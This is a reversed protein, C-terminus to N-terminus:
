LHLVIHYCLDLKNHALRFFNFDLLAFGSIVKEDNGFAFTLTPDLVLFALFTKYSHQFGPLM